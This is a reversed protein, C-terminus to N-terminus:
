GNKSEKDDEVRTRLVEPSIYLSFITAEDEAMAKLIKTFDKM